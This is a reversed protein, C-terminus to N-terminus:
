MNRLENDLRAKDQNSIINKDLLIGDLVSLYNKLHGFHNVKIMDIETKLGNIETRMETRLGDIETRLGNINQDLAEFRKDLSDDLASQKFGYKLFNLGHKGFGVLFLIGAAIGLAGAAIPPVIAVIKDLFDWGTM